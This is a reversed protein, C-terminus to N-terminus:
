KNLKRVKALKEKIWHYVITVDTGICFDRVGLDMYKRVDTETFGWDLEVRPRIDMKVATKIAKLEAEKVKPHNFQGPVGISISYDCPGFQIMDVGQVSLIEELNDLAAKKEIMFAIVTDNMANVYATSGPEVVYGVSRRMHCGHVGKETPTEMRVANICEEADEVRRIDAFLLSQIGSGLARQALFTRPQQDLKMMSSLGTADCARALNELDHLDYPAYEGSFEVYDVQGAAAIVEVMGPWPCLFHTGLTPKNQNLLERLKNNRM